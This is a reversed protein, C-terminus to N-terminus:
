SIIIHLIITSIEYHIDIAFTKQLKKKKVIFINVSNEISPPEMRGGHRHFGSVRYLRLSVKLKM